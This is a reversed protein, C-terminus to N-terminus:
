DQQRWGYRALIHLPLEVPMTVLPDVIQCVALDGVLSLLRVADGASLGVMSILFKVAKDLVLRQARDLTKASALIMLKGSTRVSPTVLTPEVVKVSCTIRGSVELGCIAVEGDAMLAHLDGMALLAGKIYVASYFHGVQRHLLTGGPM